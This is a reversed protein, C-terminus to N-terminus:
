WPFDSLDLNEIADVAMRVLRGVNVPNSQPEGRYSHGAWFALNHFHRNSSSGDIFLEILSGRDPMFVNHMLGAGHPGIMVDTTADIAIQEEFNLRSFDVDRFRVRAGNTFKRSELSKLGAVIEKDNKIMRGLKRIQLHELQRCEFYSGETDCFAKEPWEVSARRAVYTVNVDLRHRGKNVHQLGLSRVMFDAYARV